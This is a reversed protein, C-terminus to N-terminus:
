LEGDSLASALEAMSSIVADVDALLDTKGSKNAYRVVSVGADRAAAIDRASEGVLLCDAAKVQLENM